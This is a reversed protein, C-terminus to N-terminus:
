LLSDNHQQLICPELIHIFDNTANQNFSSFRLKFTQVFVEELGHDKEWWINNTDMIENIENRKSRITAFM